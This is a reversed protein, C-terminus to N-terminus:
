PRGGSQDSKAASQPPSEAPRYRYGVGTVTVILRPRRPNEELKQRLSHIYWKLSDQSGEEYSWVGEMLQQHRVVRDSNQCLFALLRFETPRLTLAQGRFQAEHTSFNMSLAADSYGSPVEEPLAARRLLAEVRAAFVRKSVPKVLYEDAGLGLGRIMDDDSDLATLVLIHAESVERIRGILEFGDMGAMRLDVISLAPHHEFFLRLAKSGDTACYVQYGEEEPWEQLLLAMNPEDDVVLVKPSAM